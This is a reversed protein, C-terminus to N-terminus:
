IYFKNMRRELVKNFFRNLNDHIDGLSYVDQTNVYIASQEHGHKRMDKKTGIVITPVNMNKYDAELLWEELNLHSKQNTADFVLIIGHYDQYLFRNAVRHGRSGGIDWFELFSNQFLKVEISCGITWQTSTLVRSHCILHVLSSKGVGPDGLVLIKASKRDLNGTM